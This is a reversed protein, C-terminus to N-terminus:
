KGKSVHGLETKREEIAFAVARPARPFLGGESERREMIKLPGGTEREFGKVSERFPGNECGKGQMCELLM